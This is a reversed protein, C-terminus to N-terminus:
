DGVAASVGSMEEVRLRRFSQLFENYPLWEIASDKKKVHAVCNKPSVPELERCAIPRADHELSCGTDTLFICEGGWTPDYVSGLANKHAPRVFHAKSVNNEGTPDGEWWDIAYKGSSIAHLVAKEVSARDEGFDSPFCTGAYAKCCVGGCASCLEDNVHSM